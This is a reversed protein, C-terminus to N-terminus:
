RIGKSNEVVARYIKLDSPPPLFPEEPRIQTRMGSTTIELGSILGPTSWPLGGKEKSTTRKKDIHVEMFIPRIRDTPDIKKTPPMKPVQGGGGSWLRLAQGGVYFSLTPITFRQKPLYTHVKRCNIVHERCTYVRCSLLFSYHRFLHSELWHLKRKM